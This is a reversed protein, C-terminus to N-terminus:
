KGNNNYKVMIHNTAQIYFIKILSSYKNKLNVRNDFKEWALVVNAYQEEAIGALMFSALLYGNNISSTNLLKGSQRYIEKTNREVQAILLNVWTIQKSSLNSFCNSKKFKKWFVIQEKQEIYPVIKLMVNKLSEFWIPSKSTCHGLETNAIYADLELRINNNIINNKTKAYRLIDFIRISKSINRSQWQLKPNLKKVSYQHTSYKSDLIEVYPISTLINKTFNVSSSNLYRAKVANQDVYPFFDSNVPAAISQIYPNLYSKEGIKLMRIDSLSSIGMGKLASSIKTNEFLKVSLKNLKGSKTSIIIIDVGNSTYIAYDSMNESLAKVISAIIKENIEYLHIWQALIGNENLNEAATKYFEKSFLGSIGSVWPNSPESFIIDYKIKSSAFHSKADTIIFESRPDTFPKTIVPSFMKAAEIMLPEIEITQLNKIQPFSLITESTLGSGMGITVVNEASSNYLMGLIAILIMTPQDGTFEGDIDLNISADSKGNTRISRITNFETISVSASRGDKYFRVKTSQFLEANGKRYVGAAMKYPDFNIGFSIVLFISLIFAFSAYVIKYSYKKYLSKIIIIGVIIDIMAGFILLGKTGFVLFGFSVAIVIGCIAGITNSAYIWGVSKEGFDEKILIHTLLPLTMGAFITTPLMIILAILQSLINFLVYGQETRNIVTLGYSMFDFLQNYNLITILATLGMLIQVIGLYIKPSQIKSIRTKIWLSGIALGFIFASLMLEFAHTSAGLVLTLMRIWAIEYVFSALGTLYAILLMYGFINNFKVPFGSNDHTIKPLTIKRSILYVILALICNIFGALLVTGPLGYNSILIYGSILVGLAAGLSNSFYLISIQKGATQKDGRVFGASMIPFTMGLLISQPLILLAALSWQVLHVSFEYELNPFINYYVFETSFSYISHFLIGLIGIALEIIAYILFPNAYRYSWKAAFWSGISLGLMFITLVLAQALAAHGLFLKIYQTWISEYILGTFGSASFM